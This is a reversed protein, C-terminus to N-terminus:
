FPKTYKQKSLKDPLIVGFLPNRHVQLTEDKNPIPESQVIPNAPAKPLRGFLPNIYVRCPEVVSVTESPENTALLNFKNILSHDLERELLTPTSLIAYMFKKSFNSEKSLKVALVEHKKLSFLQDQLHLAAFLSPGLLMGLVSPICVDPETNELEWRHMIIRALQIYSELAQASKESGIEKLKEIFVFICTTIEEADFKKSNVSKKLKKCFIKWYKEVQPESLDLIAGQRFCEKILWGWVRAKEKDTINLILKTLALGSLTDERKEESPTSEIVHYFHLLRELYETSDFFKVIADRCEDLLGYAPDERFLGLARSNQLYVGSDPIFLTRAVALLRSSENLSWKHSGTIM